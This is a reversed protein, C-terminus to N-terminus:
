LITRNGIEDIALGQLAKKHWCCFICPVPFYIHLDLIKITIIAIKLNILEMKSMFDREILIIDCIKVNKQCM